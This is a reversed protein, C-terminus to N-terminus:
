EAGARSAEAGRRADALAQVLREARERLAGADRDDRRVLASGVGFAVAGARVWEGITSVDVGGTPVFGIDDLPARISKLYAPGLIEAPFLKVLQCGAEFATQAESPTFVGPLHVVGLAASREVARLDLNPSILFSAGAGVAADVDAATRVTGAGVLLGAAMRGRLAEIAELAAPSNLTVEMARVGGARLAEAMELIEACTYEGRVIAIIGADRLDAQVATADMGMEQYNPSERVEAEGGSGPGAM